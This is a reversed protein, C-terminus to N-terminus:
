YYSYSNHERSWYLSNETTFIVDQDFQKAFWFTGPDSPTKISNGILLMKDSMGNKLSVKLILNPNDLGYKVLSDTHEVIFHKKGTDAIESVLSQINKQDAMIQFPKTMMWNAGSQEIKITEDGRM